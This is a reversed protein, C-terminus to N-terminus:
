LETHKILPVQKELWASMERLTVTGTYEIIKGDKVLIFKPLSTIEINDPIYNEEVDFVALKVKKDYTYELYKVLRNKLEFAHGQYSSSVQSKAIFLCIAPVDSKMIYNEFNDKVVDCEISNEDCVPIPESKEFKPPNGARVQEITNELSEFSFPVNEDFIVPQESKYLFVATPWVRGTAGFYKFSQKLNEPTDWTIQANKVTKAWEEYKTKEEEEIGVLVTLNYLSTGRDFFTKEKASGFNPLSNIYIKNSISEEKEGEDLKIKQPELPNETKCNYIWIASESTDKDELIFFNLATYIHRTVDLFKRALPSQNDNSHLVVVAYASPIECYTEVKNNIEDLEVHRLSEAQNQEMWTFIFNDTYTPSYRLRAIVKGNHYWLMMGDQSSPITTKSLDEETVQLLDIVGLQVRDLKETEQYQKLIRTWTPISNQCITNPANCITVGVDPASTIFEDWSELDVITLTLPESDDNEELFTEM